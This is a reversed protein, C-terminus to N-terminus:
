RGQTRCRGVSAAHSFAAGGAAGAHGARAARGPVHPIVRDVLHAATQSMRRAGCSPCFGRRKCSFALLKDHGCEVGDADCRYVVTLVRQPHRVLTLLLDFERRSLDVSAGSVRVERASPDIYLDLVHHAPLDTDKPEAESPEMSDNRARRLLAKVRASLERLSFPKIVYDDAGIELGLVRDIEDDRATLM